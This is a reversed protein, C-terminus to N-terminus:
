PWGPTLGTYGAAEFLQVWRDWSSPLLWLGHVFVVPPKGTANAREVQQAEYAAITEPTSMYPQLRCEPAAGALPWHRNGGGKRAETLQLIVVVAGGSFEAARASCM